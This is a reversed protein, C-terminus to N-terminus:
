TTPTHGPLIALQAPGTAGDWGPDAVGGGLLGFFEVIHAPRVSDTDAFVLLAPATFASVAPQVPEGYGPPQAALVDM